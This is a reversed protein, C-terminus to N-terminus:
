LMSIMSPGEAAVSYPVSAALPTMEMMVFFPATPAGVQSSVALCPESHNM